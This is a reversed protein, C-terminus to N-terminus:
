LDANAKEIRRVLRSWLPRLQKRIAPSGMQKAAKLGYKVFNRQGLHSYREYLQRRWVEEPTSRYKNHKRATQKALSVGRRMKDSFKAFAASRILKRTGDFTFGLYQLPRDAALAGSVNQFTITETKEINISLGYEGILDEVFKGLGVSSKPSVLCLIDDCYRMYFGEREVIEARVRQDFELLYINSLLASIPSGQPIGKNCLHRKILKGDRVKARFDAASCLRQPFRPPNNESYGLASYVDERIVYSYRSLSKFIAYHDDPLPSQSLLDAWSKKLHRHDLNDFFGTIDTAFAVCEGMAKILEFADNAFGINSKGLPRFALVSDALGLQKLREEYRGSLLSGYYSYIHADAHAAFSIDRKKPPKSVAVGLANKKIKQTEVQYRLLPYFSHVAISKPDSVFKEAAKLGLPSDFHVYGRPKYWPHKPIKITM